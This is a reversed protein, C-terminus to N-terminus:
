EEELAKKLDEIQVFGGVTGAFYNKFWEVAKGIVEERAIQAATMADEPTLWPVLGKYIGSNKGNFEYENSGNRTQQEIYESVKSM